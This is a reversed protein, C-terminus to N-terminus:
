QGAAKLWATLDLREWVILTPAPVGTPSLALLIDAWVRGDGGSVLAPALGPFWTSLAQGPEGAVISAEAFRTVPLEPAVSKGDRFLHLESDFGRDQRGVHMAHFSLTVARDDDLLMSPAYSFGAGRDPNPEHLSVPTQWAGEPSRWAYYARDNGYIRSVATGHWAVHVGGARDELVRVWDCLVDQDPRGPAAWEAQGDVPGPIPTWQGPGVRRALRVTWYAGHGQDESYREPNVIVSSAAALPRGRSDLSLSVTKVKQDNGFPVPEANWTRGGDTSRVYIAAPTLIHIGDADAAISPGTDHGPSAVKTDIEDSWRWATKDRTATKDWTLSRYRLTGEAQWAFHVTDGVVALTPMSSWTGAHQGLPIPDTEFHVGGDPLVRARRYNAGERPTDRWADYWVMHVSGDADRAIHATNNGAIANAGGSSGVPTMGHPVVFLYAERRAAPHDASEPDSASWIVRWVGVGLRPRPLIATVSDGGARAMAILDRMPPDDLGIDSVGAPLEIALPDPLVIDPAGAWSVGVQFTMLWVAGLVARPIGPFIRQGTV